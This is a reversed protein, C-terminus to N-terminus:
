GHHPVWRSLATELRRLLRDLAYGTLGVVVIGVIVIDLQFLKRGWVMMYGIGETAALMEVVILAIFAHSLGLRFGSFVTPLSAPLTLRTLQTWRRLRLVRAAETYALPIQRIGRSTNLVVPVMVAKAIVIVKLAEDIGFILILIPIWGLTPVAFLARLTPELHARARASVGLWVGLALGLPGGLALGSAIRQLSILFGDLLEGGRALELLSDWVLAPAPLIQPPVWANVAAWQWLVVISVPLALALLLRRLPAPVASRWPWAPTAQAAPATTAGVGPAFQELASM